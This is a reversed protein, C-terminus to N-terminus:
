EWSLVQEITQEETISFGITQNINNGILLIEYDGIFWGQLPKQLNFIVRGYDKVARLPLVFMVEDTDIYTIAVNIEDNPKFNDYVFWIAFGETDVSFSSVKTLPYNNEIKDTVLVELFRSEGQEDLNGYKECFYSFM